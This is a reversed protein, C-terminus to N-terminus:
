SGLCKGLQGGAVSSGAGVQLLEEGLGRLQATADLLALWLQELSSKVFLRLRQVEQLFTHQFASPPPLAAVAAAAAERQWGSSGGGGDDEDGAGFAALLRQLLEGSAPDEAAPRGGAGAEARQQALLAEYRLYCHRFKAVGQLVLHPVNCCNHSSAFISFRQSQPPQWLVPTGGGTAGGGEM